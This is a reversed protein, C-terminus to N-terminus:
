GGHQRVYRVEHVQVGGLEFTKVSGPEPHFGAAAYFKIARENGVLVWLSIRAAGQSAMVEQSKLWLQHGLGTSWYAPVVYLAWVEYDTPGSGEDRCPGYASFGVVQGGVKAVRLSPLGNILSEAWMGERGQVSLGALFEQPLLGRYAHQWSLVHVEAIARADEYTAAHISM